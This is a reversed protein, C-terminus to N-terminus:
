PAPPRGLGLTDRLEAHASSLAQEVRGRDTEDLDDLAGRWRAEFGALAAQVRETALPAPAAAQAPQATVPVIVASRPILRTDGGRENCATMPGVKVLTEGQYDFRHGVPLQPFKM